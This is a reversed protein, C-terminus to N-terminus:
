AGTDLGDFTDGRKLRVEAGPAQIIVDSGWLGVGQLGQQAVEQVHQYM